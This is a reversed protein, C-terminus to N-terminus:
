GHAASSVPVGAICNVLNMSAMMVFKDSEAQAHPQSIERLWQNTESVVFALLPQEPHQSAYQERAGDATSGM